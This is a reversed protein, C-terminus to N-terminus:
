GYGPVFAITNNQVFRANNIKPPDVRACAVLSSPGGVINQCFPDFITKFNM